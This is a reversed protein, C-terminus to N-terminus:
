AAHRESKLNQTAEPVLESALELMEATTVPGGYGMNQSSICLRYFNDALREASAQEGKEAHHQRINSLRMAIARALARLSANRRAAAQQIENNSPM